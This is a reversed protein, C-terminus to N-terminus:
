WGNESEWYPNRRYGYEERWRYGRPRAYPDEQYYYGGYNRSPRYYERDYSRRRYQRGNGYFEGNPGYYGPGYPGDVTGNGWTGTSAGAEAPPSWTAVAGFLAVAALGTKLIYRSLM